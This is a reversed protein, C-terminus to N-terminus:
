DTNAAHATISEGAGARSSPRNEAAKEVAALYQELQRREGRENKIEAELREVRAAWGAAAAAATDEQGGGGGGVNLEGALATAEGAGKVNLMGALALMGDEDVDDPAPEAAARGPQGQQAALYDMAQEAMVLQEEKESLSAEAAARGAREAELQEGLATSTWESMRVRTELMEIRGADEAGGRGVADGGAAGRAAEGGGAAAGGGGGGGAQLGLRRGDLEAAMREKAANELVLAQELDQMENELARMRQDGVRQTQDLQRRMAELAAEGAWVPTTSEVAPEPAASVSAALQEAVADRQAEAEALQAHLGAVAAAESGAQAQGAETAAAEAAARGAQAATLEAEAAARARQEVALAADAEALVEKTEDLEAQQLLQQHRQHACM